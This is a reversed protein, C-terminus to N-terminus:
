DDFHISWTSAKKLSTPHPILGWILNLYSLQATDLSQKELDQPSTSTTFYPYRDKIAFDGNVIGPFGTSDSAATACYNLLDSQLKPIVNSITHQSIVLYSRKGKTRLSNNYSASMWGYNFEAFNFKSRQFAFDESYSYQVSDSLLTLLKVNHLEYETSFRTEYYLICGLILLLFHLFKTLIHISCNPM